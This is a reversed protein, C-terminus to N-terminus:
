QGLALLDEAIQEADFEPYRLVQVKGASRDKNAYRYSRDYYELLIRVATEADDKQIAETVEAYRLGGLRRKIKAVSDLLESKPFDGYDEILRAIRVEIPLEILYLDAQKMQQWLDAHIHLKGIARSEDEIWLAPGKARQLEWALDNEFQAPMVERQAGLAGFASGRHDAHGELDLVSSGREAIKHLIETKGSGTAGGILRIPYSQIFRQLVWNRFAKYGGELVIIDLGSVALMAAVSESRMGSRWCHVLLKGKKAHAIGERYMRQMKPQVLTMGRDVAAGRGVQKYLTGIEGREQDDFLPFSIAGPVHGKLYEGPSRVDLVPIERALDVFERASARRNMKISKEM